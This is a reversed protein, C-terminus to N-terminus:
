GLAAKSLYRALEASTPHTWMISAPLHIGTQQQLRGRISINMVSDLGIEIFPRDPEVQSLSLGTEDAVQRRVEDLAAGFLSEPPLARLLSGVPPQEQKEGISRDAVHEFFSNRGGAPPTTPRVVVVYGDDVAHLCNWAEHAESVTIGGFGQERMSLLSDANLQGMGKDRWATWAIASTKDGRRRRHAALGDLFVNAAAYATVGPLTVLPATSSFLVMFDVSGPPFLDHLVLAGKVKAHMNQRVASDGLEDILCGHIAGAAHVLGRIPPMGWVDPALLARCAQDDTVDLAVPRVTAGARELEEITSIALRQAEDQADRWLARDPLGRRGVLILNRAGRGYLHRAAELGLAGFGGTVLYTADPDLRDRPTKSRRPRPVLRAAEIGDPSISLWDEALDQKVVDALLNVSTPSDDALDVAGCRFEPHETAIIRAAGWLPRTALATERACERAGSTVIWLRCGTGGFRVLSQVTQALATLNRVSSEYTTEDPLSSSDSPAVFIVDRPGAPIEDATQVVEAGAFHRTLLGTMPTPSASVITVARGDDVQAPMALVPQWSLGHLLTAPDADAVHDIDLLGFRLGTVRAAAESDIGRITVDIVDATGERLVAELRATAPAPGTVEVSEIAAPMRHIGQRALPLSALTTAADLIVVWSAPLDNASVTATVTYEDHVLHNVKWEFALGSVGLPRLLDIVHDTGVPAEPAATIGIPIDDPTLVTPGGDHAQTHTIWNADALADYPRSNVTAMGNQSIVQVARDQEAPLPTRLKVDRLRRSPGAGTSTAAILTALLVAAPVIDVGHVTHPQKYPRTGPTLRTQWVDAPPNTAVALRSGLLTYSDVDHGGQGVAAAPLWFPRHQWAVRPLDVRESRPWSASWDVLVGACHLEGLQETLETLQPKGRRLSHAVTVGRVGLGEAIQPINHGVVPHPSVELFHRHGDEFMATVATAFRVPDRMNRQWYGADRPVTSRPDSLATSYLPLTARGCPLEEAVHKLNELLGDMSASHFAVDSAVRRAVHGECTAERVFAEVQDADGAVVAWGPATEIGAELGPASALRSRLEDFPMDLLAMAGRGAVATLLAARRCAFRAADEASWLGAAAAAAIEGMSHGVVAAPRVGYAEWVRLLGLQVGPMIAQIRDTRTFEDRELAGILSFGSEARYVPDLEECSAAFEQSRLLLERGMGAWQSGHGSFVFAPRTKEDRARAHVVGPVQKGGSWARLRSIAQDRNEAVVATRWALHSRRVALASAVMGLDSSGAELVNALEGATDRVAESSAASLVLLLPNDSAEDPRGPALPDGEEIVVHGITGGYGFSSVAAIRPRDPDRPWPTPQDVVRLCSQAAVQPNVGEQLGVTAPLLEHRMALVTKIVGVAGAGAELHGVNGKVSGILLPRGAARGAGFVTAAAEAETPDGLATGTGHAELYDVASVPIGAQRYTRTLMEIQARGNPAMIGNTRGDQRVTSGRIVALVTDGDRRADPLRKLVLVAAGEGRGYGSASASFPKSRGDTALAGSAGLSLTQAPAAILNVGGTIVLDCEGSGLAQTGLHLTALSSSCASDVAFSPGRLDLFYSVRNAVACYSGGISSWPGINEPAALLMQGYEGGGVGMIVGTNSGALSSPAIGAHELAEWSVELILRQQPDMLAAERPTIGFFEADFGAADDLYAARSTARGVAASAAPGSVPYAAWRGEPLDGVMSDERALCRWFEEPGNIGGAVRLGLGVIAIAHSGRADNMDIDDKLHVDRPKLFARISRGNKLRKPFAVEETM